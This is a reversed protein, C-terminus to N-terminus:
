LWWETNQLLVVNSSISLTALMPYQGTLDVRYATQALFRLARTCALLNVSKFLRRHTAPKGSPPRLVLPHRPDPAPNLRDMFIPYTPSMAPM